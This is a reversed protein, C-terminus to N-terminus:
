ITNWHKEKYRDTPKVDTKILNIETMPSLASTQNQRYTTYNRTREAINQLNNINFIVQPSYCYSNNEDWKELVKQNIEGDLSGGREITKFLKNFDPHEGFTEAFTKDNFFDDKMMYQINDKTILKENVRYQNNRNFGEESEGNKFKEGNGAIINLNDLYLNSGEDEADHDLSIIHRINNCGIMKYLDNLYAQHIFQM